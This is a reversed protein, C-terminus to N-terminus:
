FEMFSMLAQYFSYASMGFLTWVIIAWIPISAELAKNGNGYRIYLYRVFQLVLNFVCSLVLATGLIILIKLIM